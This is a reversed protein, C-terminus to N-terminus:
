QVTNNEKRTIYFTKRKPRKLSTTTM